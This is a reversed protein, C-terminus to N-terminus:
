SYKVSIKYMNQICQFCVKNTAIFKKVDENLVNGYEAYKRCADWQFSGLYHSDQVRGVEKPGGSHKDQAAAEMREHLLSPVKM